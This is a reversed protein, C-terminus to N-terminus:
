NEKEPDSENKKNYM